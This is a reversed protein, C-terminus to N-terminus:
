GFFLRREILREEVPKYIKLIQKSLFITTLIIMILFFIAGFKSITSFNYSLAFRYIVVHQILMAVYSIKSFNNFVQMLKKFHENLYVAAVYIFFILIVAALLYQCINIPNDLIIKEWFSGANQNFKLAYLVLGGAFITFIYILKRKESLIFDQYLYLIMGFLFEPIRVPFFIGVEAIIGQAHLIKTLEFSGISIIISSLVTIFFYRCLFKYLLPAILYLYIIMGIFWEGIFGYVQLDFFKMFNVDMSLPLMGILLASINGGSNIVNKLPSQEAIQPEFIGLLILLTALYMYAVAFPIAIRIIKRRYFELISKSHNLSNAALYGSVAFFIM